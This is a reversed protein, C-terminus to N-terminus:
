QLICPTLTQTLACLTNLTTVLIYMTNPNTDCMMYVAKSTVNVPTPFQTLCDPYKATTYFYVSRKHEALAYLANWMAISM